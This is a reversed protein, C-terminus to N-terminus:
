LEGESHGYSAVIELGLIPIGIRASPITAQKRDCGNAEIGLPSARAERLSACPARLSRAPPRLSVCPARLPACPARLPACPARLPACTSEDAGRARMRSAHPHRGFAVLRGRGEPIRQPSPPVTQWWPSRACVFSRADPQVLRRLPHPAPPGQLPTHSRQRPGPAAPTSASTRRARSRKRRRRRIDGVEPTGARRGGGARRITLALRAARRARWGELLPAPGGRHWM